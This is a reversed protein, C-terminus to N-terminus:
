LKYKKYLKKSTEIDGLKELCLAMNLIINKDIFGNKILISLNKSANKYDNINMYNESIECLYKNNYPNLSVLESLLIIKRYHNNEATENLEQSLLTESLKSVRTPKNKLEKFNNEIISKNYFTNNILRSDFNDIHRFNLSDDIELILNYNLNYLENEINFNNIIKVKNSIVGSEIYNNKVYENDVWVQDIKNNFYNVIDIPLYKFPFFSYLIYYSESHIVHEIFFNNYEHFTSIINKDQKLFIKNLKNRKSFTTDYYKILDDINNTKYIPSKIYNLYSAIFKNNNEIILDNIFYEREKKYNISQAYNIIKFISDYTKDPRLNMEKVLNDYKDTNNESDLFINSIGVNDILKLTSIDTYCRLTELDKSLQDDHYIQIYIPALNIKYVQYKPIIRNWMDYDDTGNLTEDFYGIDNFVSKRILVSGVPFINGKIQQVYLENGELPNSMENIEYTNSSKFYNVIDDYFIAVKENNFPISRILLDLGYPMLIDDSDCLKIFNGLSNKIGKNRAGSVGTNNQYIYRIRKDKELYKEIIHKTNDTSGDDVIILEWNEYSQNIISEISESITIEDNYAPMIISILENINYKLKKEYNKISLYKKYLNELMSNIFTNNSSIIKKEFFSLHFLQRQIEDKKM